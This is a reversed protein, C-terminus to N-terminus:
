ATPAVGAGGPAEAVLGADGLDDAVAGGRAPQLLPVDDHRDVAREDRRALASAAEAAEPGTAGHDERDPAVALVAAHPDHRALHAAVLLEHDAGGRRSRQDPHGRD